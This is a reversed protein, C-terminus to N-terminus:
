ARMLFARAEKAQTYLIQATICSETLKGDPTM